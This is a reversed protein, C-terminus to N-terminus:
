RVARATSGPTSKRAAAAVASASRRTKRGGKAGSAARHAKVITSDILHLSDRSKAAFADFVRKWIGRRAWRIFRNYATTHPGYRDPLDRWPAGTRLIYFIGNIVRRDDARASKRARPLLPELLAWEADTLDFRM